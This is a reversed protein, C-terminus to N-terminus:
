SLSHCEVAFSDGYNKLIYSISNARSIQSLYYLPPATHLIWTSDWHPYPMNYILSNSRFFFLISDAGMYWLHRFFSFIVLLMLREGEANKWAGPEKDKKGNGHICDPVMDCNGIDFFINCSSVLLLKIILVPVQKSWESAVTCALMDTRCSWVKWEKM